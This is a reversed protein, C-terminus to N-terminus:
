ISYLLNDFTSLDDINDFIGLGDSLDGMSPEDLPEDKPEEKPEDMPEGMLEESQEDVPEEKLEEKPEIKPEDQPIEKQEENKSFDIIEVEFNNDDILEVEEDEVKPASTEELTIVEENIMVEDEEDSFDLTIIEPENISTENPKNEKMAQTNTNSKKRSKYVATFEVDVQLLAKIERNTYDESSDMLRVAGATDLNTRSHQKNNVQFILKYGDLSKKVKMKWGAPLNPHEKWGWWRKIEPRKTKKKKGVETKQRVKEVNIDCEGFQQMYKVAMNISPFWRGRPTMCQMYSKIKRTRWDEPLEPNTEWGEHILCQRMAEIDESPEEAMILNRLAQGRTKFQIGTPSLFLNKVPNKPNSATKWDPPVTSDNLTWDITQKEDTKKTVRGPHTSNLRTHNYNSSLKILNELHEQNYELSAKMYRVVPTIGEFKKGCPSRFMKKTQKMYTQLKMKWNLPLNENSEWGLLKYGVNEGGQGFNDKVRQIEEPCFDEERDSSEMYRIVASVAEFPKCWPSLFVKRSINGKKKSFWTKRKVMWNLPLADHREWGEAKLYRRMEEIDEIPYESSIMHKLAIKRTSFIEDKSSLIIQKGEKTNAVKWGEPVTPDDSIWDYSSPTVGKIKKSSSTNNLNSVAYARVKEIDERTYCDPESEMQKIVLSCSQYTKGCPEMFVKRGVGSVEKRKMRWNTPFSENVEWGEYKLCERMRDREEGPYGNLIMHKLALRRNIFIQHGFIESKSSILQQGPKDSEAVKWGKPVTPDDSIWDYSSSIQKPRTNRIQTGWNAIAFAQAKEIDENTYSESSSRMYTVAVAMSEFVKGVPTLYVNRAQNKGIKRKMMWNSPLNENPKWGEHTLYSKMEQRVEESYNLVVLNRFAVRRNTYVEGEPSMVSQGGFKSTIEIKWGPPVTPDDTIWELSAIEKTSTISRVGTPREGIYFGINELDEKAKWISQYWKGSPSMVISGNSKGDKDKTAKAMWGEPLRSTQNWGEHKLFLRMNDVKEEPFGKIIMYKMADRRSIHQSGDSCLLRERGDPSRGLKWDEPVTSQDETWDILATDVHAVKKAFGSPTGNLTQNLSKVNEIEHQSFTKQEEMYRVVSSLTDFMKGNKTMILRRLQKNGGNAKKGNKKFRMRWNLPLKENEKWGEVTTWMRMSDIEQSQFGRAVMYKLAERRNQHQTGDPCLIREKGDETKGVKWGYPVTGQETWTISTSEIHSVRGFTTGVLGFSQVDEIEKHSYNGAEKMYAVAFTIRNFLKGENTMLFKRSGNSKVIKIKLRWNFPLKEHEEWGESKTCLRMVEIENQPFNNTVMYKLAERRNAHKSGDPCLLKQNRNELNSVKWGEPLTAVDEIWNPRQTKQPKLSVAKEPGQALSQLEDIETKSYGKSEMYRVASAITNLLEGSDSMIFKRFKDEKETKCVKFRWSSPLKGNVEWGEAKTCTRMAEIEEQPFQKCVLYKLALRRTALQSGDPCLLRQKGDITSLGIKWSEPVTPDNDIWEVDTVNKPLKFPAQSLVSVPVPLLSKVNEIETTSYVEPSAEMFRVVSAISEFEIGTEVMFRRVTKGEKSKYTKFRWNKPIKENEEWGDAKTCDRMAEIQEQPYNKLVMYKLAVRRNLHSSGDPCKIKQNGDNTNCVKWGEPVTDSTEWRSLNHFQLRQHQKQPQQPKTQQNLTQPLHSKVQLQQLKMQDTKAGTLNKLLEIDEKSGGKRMMMEFANQGFVVKGAETLFVTQRSQYKLGAKTKNTQVIEKMRWDRPLKRDEQWGEHRLCKRMQDIDEFPFYNEIMNALALRRNAFKSGAPSVFIKMNSNSENEEVKWGQPLELDERIVLKSQNLKVLFCKFKELDETSGESTLFNEAQTSSEFQRYSYEPDFYLFINKNTMGNPRKMVKFKWGIPLISDEEWGDDGLYKVMEAIQDLPYNEEKMHKLASLRGQFVKGYPSKLFYRSLNAVYKVKWGKPATSSSEFAEDSMKELIKM